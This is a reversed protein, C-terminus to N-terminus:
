ADLDEQALIQLAEQLSQIEAERKEVREEYSLGHNVCDPKLKEYYDLAATLEEQTLELEKKTSAIDAETKMKNNEKHEIETEKVAVDQNSENMYKEYAEAAQDEAASTETELRAFDSLVVELFGVIGGSEAQMGTYPVDTQVLAAGGEASAYFEKLIQTAKEVAVQAEKADAITQTNTKKEDQRQSTAEAQAKKIEAVADSLDALETSLREDTATLKEVTATLEEVESAKIERTQKNTALETDCYAKHDAESNAEEMLKVILDKIMKKVKVFPDASLRSAVLSLYRSGLDAARKQLLDAAKQRLQPSVGDSRLQVLSAAAQAFSAPLYTEANGKVSDSNLIEVAKEIARIEEARVNQNKEYEESRASCATETEEL